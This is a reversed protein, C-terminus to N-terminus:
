IMGDSGEGRKSDFYEWCKMRLCEWLVLINDYGGHYCEEDTKILILVIGKLIKDHCEQCTNHVLLGNKPNPKWLIKGFIRAIRNILSRDYEHEKWNEQLM